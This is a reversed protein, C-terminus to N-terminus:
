IRTSIGYDCSGVRNWSSNYFCVEIRGTARGEPEPSYWSGSGGDSITKTSYTYFGSGAQSWQLKAVVHYGDKADTINWYNSNTNFAGGGGWKGSPAFYSGTFSSAAFAPTATVVVGFAVLSSTM